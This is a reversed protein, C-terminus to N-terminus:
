RRTKVSRPQCARSQKQSLPVLHYPVGNFWRRQSGKPLSQARPPRSPGVPAPIPRTAITQLKRELGEVRRELSSIRARLRAISDDRSRNPDAAGMVMLATTMLVVVATISVPARM